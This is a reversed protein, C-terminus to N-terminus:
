EGTEAPDKTEEEPTDPSTVPVDPTVPEEKKVTTKFKYTAVTAGEANVITLTADEGTIAIRLGNNYNNINIPMTTKDGDFLLDEGKYTKIGVTGNTIYVFFNNSLKIYDYSSTNEVQTKGSYAKVKSSDAIVYYENLNDMIKGAFGGSTIDNTDLIEWKGDKLVIVSTGSFREMKDVKFNYDSRYTASVGNSKLTIMGYKGDTNKALINIDNELFGFGDKVGLDIESYTGLKKNNKLDYLYIVKSNNSTIKSNDSIFVFRNYIIPAVGSSINNAVKYNDSLNSQTAVDCAEFASNANEFTNKNTCPYSGLLETKEKDSYFYLKGDSYSYYEKNKSNMGELLDITKETDKVKVVVTNSNIELTFPTEEEILNNDKDYKKTSRYNRSALKIGDLNYSEKDYGKLYLKGNDVMAIFKDYLVAYEADEVIIENKYNVVNYADSKRLVLYKNNYMVINSDLKSALAKGQFDLLYYSGNKGAVIADTKFDDEYALYTYNDDIITSVKNDKLSVVKFKDEEKVIVLEDNVKKLGDYTNVKENDKLNYLTIKGDTEKENDYIFVLDQYNTSREKYIEDEQYVLTTNFDDLNNEYFAVYCLEEDKNECEYKGLVEQDKDLIELVGNKYTYNSETLIVDETPEDDKKDDKPKRLVFLLILGIILLLVVVASVIIIIKKKKPLKKFKEILNEKKGDKKEADEKKEEEAEEKTAFEKLVEESEVFEPNDIKPHTVKEENLTDLETLARTKTLDKEEDM